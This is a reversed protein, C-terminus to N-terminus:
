SQKFCFPGKQAPGDFVHMLTVALVSNKTYQIEIILWALIKAIESVYKREQAMPFISFLKFAQHVTIIM